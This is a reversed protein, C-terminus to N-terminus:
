MYYVHVRGMYYVRPTTVCENVNVFVRTYRKRACIPHVVIAARVRVACATCECECLGQARLAAHVGEHRSRAGATASCEAEGGLCLFDEPPTRLHTFPRFIFTPYPVRKFISPM